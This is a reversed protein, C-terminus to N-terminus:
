YMYLLHWLRSNMRALRKVTSKYERSHPFYVGLHNVLRTAEAGERRDIHILASYYVSKKELENRNGLTIIENLYLQSAPYDKMKFYIYGNLYVKELIRLQMRAIYQNAQSIRPDNIYREGFITFAEIARESETQDFHPSNSLKVYSEGIKFQADPALRHDPFLRLLEQYEFIADVYKKTNFHCEGLKYQADATYISSREFILQEYYPVAKPYKGQNYYREATNWKTESSLHALSKNKSCACLILTICLIYFMRKYM